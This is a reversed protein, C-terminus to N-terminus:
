SVASFARFHAIEFQRDCTVRLAAVDVDSILHHPVPRDVDDHNRAENRMDLEHMFHNSVRAKQATKRREGADDREVLSALAEGISGVADSRELFPHVVDARDHVIDARLPRHEKSEGLTARHANQEGGGVGLADRVDDEEPTEGSKGVIGAVNFISGPPSHPSPPAARADVGKHGTQRGVRIRDRQEGFEFTERGARAGHSCHDLHVRQDVDSRYEGAHPDRREHQMALVVCINRDFPPTLQGLSNGVGFIDFIGDGTVSEPIAVDFRQEAVDLFEHGARALTGRGFEFANQRRYQEGVDDFEVRVAASAPSWM